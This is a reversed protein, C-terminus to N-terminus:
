IEKYLLVTTHLAGGASRAYNPIEGARQYGMSVYLQESPDDKRTDLVLLSRRQVAATREVGQMLARGLGRRRHSSLVMLKQVEARHAGNPRMALELQVCGIIAESEGYVVLLIRNGASIGESVERWPPLFGISAGGEVSDILLDVLTPLARQTQEATLRRVFNEPHDGKSPASM